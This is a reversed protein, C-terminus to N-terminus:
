QCRLFIIIICCYYIIIKILFDVVMIIIDAAAAVAILSGLCCYAVGNCDGATGLCGGGAHEITGRYKLVGDVEIGDAAIISM